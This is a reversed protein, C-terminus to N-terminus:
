VPFTLIKKDSDVNEEPKVDIPEKPLITEMQKKKEVEAQEIGTKIQAALLPNKAFVEHDPKIKFLESMAYDANGRHTRVDCLLADQQLLLNAIQNKLQGNKASLANIFDRKNPISNM